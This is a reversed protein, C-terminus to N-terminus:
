KQPYEDEYAEKITPNIFISFTEQLNKIYEKNDDTLEPLDMSVFDYSCTPMIKMETAIGIVKKNEPYLGRAVWCIASLMAKRNNRPEPDDNFLFCYTVGDSPIMRRLSNIKPNKNEHASIHADLFAKSLFRRESRSPRALERAVVEYNISGMHTRNIIDDWGYSIEDELKKLKYEPKNILGDWCGDLIVIKNNHSIKSFDGNNMLYYALLEQEGGQINLSLNKDNLFCEKDELYKVFDTITDLENLVIETFERTFVHVTKKKIEEVFSFADEGDGLLASILYIHKITSFDFDEVNRRSNTLKIKTKLNFLQRRAGSLQKLNKEVESTNYKGNKLKLDKIQWIIAIDDFLVLIDCLEKGNPLIPNLFCWDVLFSKTALEHVIKEANAGKIQFYKKNNNEEM